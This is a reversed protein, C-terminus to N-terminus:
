KVNNFVYEVIRAFHHGRDPMEPDAKCKEQWLVHIRYKQNETLKKYMVDKWADHKESVYGKPLDTKHIKQLLKANPGNYTVKRPQEYTLKSRDPMYGKLKIGGSDSLDNPEIKIIRGTVLRWIVHPAAQQHGFMAPSPFVKSPAKEHFSLQNESKSRLVRLCLACPITHGARGHFKIEITIATVTIGKVMIKM